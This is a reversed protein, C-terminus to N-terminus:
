QFAKWYNRLPARIFDLVIAPRDDDTIKADYDIDLNHEATWGTEDGQSVTNIGLMNYFENLSAYNQNLVRFNIDNVAKQVKQMTSMFYRDTHRDYFLQDGNAVIIVERESVPHKDLIDQNIDGRVKRDVQPNEEKVRDQYERFARESVTAVSIIAAQRRMNISQAGVISAITVVQLGVAPVYDRWVTQIVQKKSLPVVPIDDRDSLEDQLHANQAHFERDLKDLAQPTARVALIVSGLSGAVAVGTLITSSNAKLFPPLTRAFQQIDM